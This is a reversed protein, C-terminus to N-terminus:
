IPLIILIFGGVVLSILNSLLAYGLKRKKSHEKILLPFALMEGLFIWFETFVVSLISYATAIQITNIYINLGAQTFANIIFFVLWSQRNRFGFAYFVIGEIILTLLIRASVLTISRSRSKGETLEGTKTNYTYTNRYERDQKLTFSTPQGDKSITITVPHTDRSDKYRYFWYQKELPYNFETAKHIEDEYVIWADVNKIDGEIILVTGPPEMANSFSLIHLPLLLLLAISIFRYRTKM